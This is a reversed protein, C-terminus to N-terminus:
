LDFKGIKGVLSVDTDYATANLSYAIFICEM